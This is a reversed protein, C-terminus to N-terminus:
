NTLAHYAAMRIVDSSYTAGSIADVQLSNNQVIDEVIAEAPKGLGCEHSLITVQTIVHDKVNVEVSAKVLGGDESGTYTGDEVTALDLNGFNFNKYVSTTNGMKVFLIIGGIIIVAFLSGIIILAKKSKTM